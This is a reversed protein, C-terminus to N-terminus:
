QQEGFCGLTAVGDVYRMDFHKGTSCVFQPDISGHQATTLMIVVVIAVGGLVSALVTNEHLWQKM